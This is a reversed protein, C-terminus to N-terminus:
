GGPAMRFSISDGNKVSVTRSEYAERNYLYHSEAADQYLTMLYNGPGLFNVPITLEREEENTLAGIFWSTNSRRGICVYKGIEADLVRSEDWTMPPLQRIFEFLDMRKEYAHPNDLM